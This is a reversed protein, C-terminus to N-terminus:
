SKSDQKDKKNKNGNNVTKKKTPKEEKIDEDSLKIEIEDPKTLETICAKLKENEHHLKYVENAILRINIRLSNPIGNKECIDEIWNIREKTM